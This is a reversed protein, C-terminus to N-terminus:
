TNAGGDSEQSDPPYIYRYFLYELNLYSCQVDFFFWDSFLQFIVVESKTSNFLIFKISFFKSAVDFLTSLIQIEFKM